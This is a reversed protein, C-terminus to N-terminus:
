ARKTEVFMEEQKLYDPILSCYDERMEIGVAKRSLRKAAKLTPGSGCFPDLVTDGESTLLKVLKAMLEDPKQAPHLRNHNHFGHFNGAIKWLDTCRRGAKGFSLRQARSGSKSSKGADWWEVIKPNCEQSYAELVEGARCQNLTKGWIAIDQHVRSLGGSVLTTAYHHWVVFGILEMGDFYRAWRFLQKAYGFIAIPGDPLIRRMEKWVEETPEEDWDQTKTGFPPDAIIAQVRGPEILPLVSEAKACYLAVSEDKYYSEIM